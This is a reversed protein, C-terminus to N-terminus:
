KITEEFSAQYTKGDTSSASIDFRWRGATLSGQAIFHGIRDDAFRAAQLDVTPGTEPTGSIAAGDAMPLEDNGQFFTAHVANNGVKAPDLYLQLSRNNGLDVTYIDPNGHQVTIRQAPVATTVTLPVEASNLGAEVLVTVSWRGALSLNTGTAAYVNGGTPKLELTSEGVSPRGPFDFRLAVRNANVPHGNNYDRVSVRFRNSGPYGPAIVLDANFVDGLDHGSAAVQQPSRTPPELSYSPPALATLMAAVGIVIAAVAVEIRGVRRLGGLSWEARPVNRYRNIAGLTLLIAFLGVKVIILGGFLTSFLRSIAGVEDVARLFGTVGIAGLAIGAVFSFRRVARAALNAPLGRLGVLLASLGGIWVAFATLHLAQAPVMLWAVNSAGAHTTLAHTFIGVLGLAGAVGLSIRQRQADQAWALVLAPGSLVIPIAQKILNGGLSTGFFDGVGVGATERQVEAQVALGIVATFFGVAAMTLLRRSPAPFAFLAIWSGGLLLALGIYYIWRGAIAFPSPPPTSPATTGSPASAGVPSTGVGFAFSGAANHGDVASVTRWSVTYVGTQLPPLAVTLTYRDASVTMGSRELQQGGANYVHIISLRPDPVETFTISVEPPAHDLTAGDAPSSLRLLAHAEALVSFSVVGFSAVLLALLIRRM